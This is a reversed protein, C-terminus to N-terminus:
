QGATHTVDLGPVSGAAPQEGALPPPTATGLDVDQQDDGLLERVQDATRLRGGVAIVGRTALEQREGESLVFQHQPAPAIGASAALDTRALQARLEENEARLADREAAIDDKLEAM